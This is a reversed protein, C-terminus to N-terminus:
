KLERIYRTAAAYMDTSLTSRAVGKGKGMSADTDDDDTDDDDSRLYRPVRLGGVVQERVAYPFRRESDGDGRIKTAKTLSQWATDSAVGVLPIVHAIGQYAYVIVARANPDVAVLKAETTPRGTHEIIHGSSETTLSQSAVDWSVVAFKTSQAGSSSVVLCASALRDAPDLLHLTSIQGNFSYEGVLQLRASSTWTYLELRNGKAVLLNTTDPGCFQGSVSSTVSSAKHASVIYQF